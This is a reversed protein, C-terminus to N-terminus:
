LLALIMTPFNQQSGNQTLPPNAIAFDAQLHPFMDKYYTNGLEIKGSLGRIALNMKCLRLTTQNSEQGSISLKSPDMKHDRLYEGM